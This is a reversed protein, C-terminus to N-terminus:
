LAPEGAFRRDLFGAIKQWEEGTRGGRLANQRVKLLLHERDVYAAVLGYDAKFVSTPDAARAQLEELTRAGKLRNAKDSIVRVNGRVYGRSPEIRDLSPSTASRTKGPTIPVGLVPCRRPVTIDTTKLDFPLGARRARDRARKVLDQRPDKLRQARLYARMYAANCAACSRRQFEHGHIPCGPRDQEIKIFGTTHLRAM